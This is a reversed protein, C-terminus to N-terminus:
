GVNSTQLDIISRNHFSISTAQQHLYQMVLGANNSWWPPTIRDNINTRRDNQRYPM